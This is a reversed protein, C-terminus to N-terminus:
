IIVSEEIKECYIKRIEEYEGLGKVVCRVEFGSSELRSKISEPSDGAMDNKAHDGAVFMLPMLTVRSIEQVKLESIVDNLSQANEVTITHLRDIGLGVCVRRFEGYVSDAAHETGHGMLVLTEEPFKEAIIRCVREMDRREYLLPKGMKVTTFSGRQEAGDALSLEYEIGAIMYTPQIMVEDYGMNSLRRLTMDPTEFSLGKKELLSIVKRSTLSLFVDYDPLYEEFDKKLTLVSNELADVHSTGFSVEIVAKRM